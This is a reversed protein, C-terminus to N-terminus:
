DDLKITHNDANLHQWTNLSKHLTHETATNRRAKRNHNVLACQTSASYENTYESATSTSTCSLDCCAHLKLKSFKDGAMLRISEAEGVTACGALQRFCGGKQGECASPLWLCENAGAAASSAAATASVLAAAVVAAAAGSFVFVFAYVFHYFHQENFHEFHSSFTPNPCCM